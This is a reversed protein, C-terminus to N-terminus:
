EVGEGLGNEKREEESGSGVVIMLKSQRKLTCRRPEVGHTCEMMLIDDESVDKLIKLLKHREPM